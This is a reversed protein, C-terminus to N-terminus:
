QQERLRSWQAEVAALEDAVEPPPEAALVELNRRSQERLRVAAPTEDAGGFIDRLTTEGADIRRQVEQWDPGLEGRRAAEARQEEREADEQQTQAQLRDVQGILAELQNVLEQERGLSM